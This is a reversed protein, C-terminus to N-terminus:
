MLILIIELQINKMLFKENKVLLSKFPNDVDEHIDELESELEDLKGVAENIAGVSTANEITKRIIVTQIENRKTFAKLKQDIVQTRVYNENETNEANAQTEIQDNVVVNYKNSGHWNSIHTGLAFAKGMTFTYLFTYILVMFWEPYFEGALAILGLIAGSVRDKQLMERIKDVYGVVDGM